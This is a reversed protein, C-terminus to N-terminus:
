RTLEFHQCVRDIAREMAHLRSLKPNRRPRNRSGPIVEGERQIEARLEDAEDLAVACAVVVDGGKKNFLFAKHARRIFARSRPSLGEFDSPKPRWNLAPLPARRSRVSPLSGYRLWRQGATIPKRGANVRAGGPM